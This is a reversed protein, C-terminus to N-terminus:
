GEFTMSSSGQSTSSELRSCLAIYFVLKIFECDGGALVSSKCNTHPFPVPDVSELTQYHMNVLVSNQTRQRKPDDFVVPM